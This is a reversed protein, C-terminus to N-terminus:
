PIVRPIGFHEKKINPGNELLVSQDLSAKMEDQRFTNVNPVAQVLPDIGETNLTNLKDVYSLISTLQKTYEEQEEETLSLRALEAIYAVEKKTIAM